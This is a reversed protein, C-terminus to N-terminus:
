ETKKIWHNIEKIMEHICHCHEYILVYDTVEKLSEILLRFYDM